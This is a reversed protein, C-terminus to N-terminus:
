KVEAKRNRKPNAASVAVPSEDLLVEAGQIASVPAITHNEGSKLHVLGEEISIEVDDSTFRTRLCGDRPDIAERGVRFKVVKLKM